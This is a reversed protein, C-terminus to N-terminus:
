RVSVPLCTLCLLFVATESDPRALAPTQVLVFKCKWGGSGSFYANQGCAVQNATNQQLLGLPGPCTLVLWGGGLSRKTGISQDSVCAPREPLTQVARGSDARGRCPCPVPAGGCM